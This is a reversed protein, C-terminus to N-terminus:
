LRADLASGSVAIPDEIRGIGSPDSKPAERIGNPHEGVPVPERRARARLECRVSLIRESTFNM